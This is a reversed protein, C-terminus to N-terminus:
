NGEPKVGCKEGLEAIERRLLVVQACTDYGEPMTCGLGGSHIQGVRDIRCLGRADMLSGGCDAICESREEEWCAGVKERQEPTQDNEPVTDRDMIFTVPAGEATCRCSNWGDSAASLGASGQAADDKCMKACWKEFAAWEAAPAKVTHAAATAATPMLLALLFCIRSTM